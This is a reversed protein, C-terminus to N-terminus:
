NDTELPAMCELYEGNSICVLGQPCEMNTRCKNKSGGGTSGGGTSGGGGPKIAPKDVIISGDEVENEAICEGYASEMNEYVCVMGMACDYSSECIVPRKTASPEFVAFSAPLLALMLIRFIFEKM